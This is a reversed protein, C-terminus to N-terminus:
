RQPAPGVHCSPEAYAVLQAFAIPDDRQDVSDQQSVGVGAVLAFSLGHPGHEECASRFGVAQPRRQQWMHWEGRERHGCRGRPRLASRAEIDAATFWTAGDVRAYNQESGLPPNRTACQGHRPQRQDGRREPDSANAPSTPPQPCASGWIAKSARWGFGTTSLARVCGTRAKRAFPRLGRAFPRIGPVGASELAGKPQWVLISTNGYM